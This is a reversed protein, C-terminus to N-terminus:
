INAYLHHCKSCILTGNAETGLIPQSVELTVYMSDSHIRSSSVSQASKGTKVSLSSVYSSTGSGIGSDLFAHMMYIYSLDSYVSSTHHLSNM